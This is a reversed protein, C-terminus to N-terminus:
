DGGRMGPVVGGIGARSKRTAAVPGTTTGMLAGLVADAHFGGHWRGGLGGETHCRCEPFEPFQSRGRNTPITLGILLHKSGEQSSRINRIRRSPLDFRTPSGPTEPGRGARGTRRSACRRSRPTCRRCRNAVHSLVASGSFRVLHATRDPHGRAGRPLPPRQGDGRRPTARPTPGIPQPARM